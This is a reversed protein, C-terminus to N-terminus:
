RWADHGEFCPSGIGGPSFRSSISCRTCAPMLARLEAPPCRSKPRRWSAARSKASRSTPSARTRRSFRSRSPSPSATPLDSGTSCAPPPSRGQRGPDCASTRGCDGGAARSVRLRAHDGFLRRRMPLGLVGARGLRPSRASISGGGGCRRADLEKGSRPHLEGFSAVIMKPGLGLKASRGPHRLVPTPFVSPERGARGGCRPACQGRSERLRRVGAGQRVAVRALPRVRSCCCRRMSLM